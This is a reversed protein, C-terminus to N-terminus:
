AASLAREVGDAFHEVMSEVTYRGASERCGDALRRRQGPDLLMGAIAEAYQTPTCGEPLLLGNRDHELYEIEPAHGPGDIAVLPTEFVFSDVVALGVLGPILMARSLMFYPAKGAGFTPGVYHIWDHMAAAQEVMHQDPGAGLVVLEFDPVLKRTAEAAELLFELRKERYLAGCFIAVNDSRLGLRDRSAALSARSVGARARALEATDIANQVTTLREAPFGLEAVVASSHSTYAFWWHVRRSLWRKVAEGPRSQARSRLNRGHGWFAVRLRRRLQRVLLVYNVLLKSAQEVVVLDGARIQGLVPQWLLHRGRLSITRNVVRRGWSVETSDAKTAEEGSPQGYVLVLEIGSAALRARLGDFFAVRYQPVFKQVIVVRPRPSTM